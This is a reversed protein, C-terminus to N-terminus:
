RTVLADLAVQDFGKEVKLYAVRDAEYVSVECVGEISAARELFQALDENGLDELSIIKSSLLKPAKMTLAVLFWACLLIALGFYTSAYTESALLWGGFLGGCFAGFFQTSSFLGMATGKMDAPAIRAVTSPLVAELFNFATFFLVLMIFVAPYSGSLALGLEALVL